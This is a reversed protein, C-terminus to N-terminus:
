EPSFSFPFPVVVIFGVSFRSEHDILDGLRWRTSGPSLKVPKPMDGNRSWRWVTDTSVGYREAVQAVNLYLSTTSTTSSNNASTSHINVIEDEIKFNPTLDYRGDLPQLRETPM